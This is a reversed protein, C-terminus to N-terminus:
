LIRGGYFRWRPFIIRMVTGDEGVLINHPKIDRHIFGMEHMADLAPCVQEMIDLTKEWSIPGDELLERVSGGSIFPMAIFLQGDEGVHLPLGEGRKVLMKLSSDIVRTLVDDLM